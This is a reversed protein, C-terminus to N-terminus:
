RTSRRMTIISFFILGVAALANWAAMSLGFIHVMAQDCSVLPANLIQARLEEITMEGGGSSSCASPGPFVGAEVGAHYTAIGADVIFLLICAYVAYKILQPKKILLAILAIIIAMIYPYRQYLCLDCPHLAFFYQGILAASLIAASAAAQLLLIQRHTFAYMALLM